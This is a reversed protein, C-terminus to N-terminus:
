RTLYSLIRRALFYVIALFAGIFAFMLFSLILNSGTRKLPLIPTDLYQILPTDRLLSTKASELNRVLDIYTSRLIQIDTQQKEGSVMPVQRNPNVHADVFSARGYLASYYANRVSDTRQQIFELNIRSRQTRTEIYYNTVTNLLAELFYKSFLEHETTLTVEIISTGKGKSDINLYKKTIQDYMLSILRNEYLSDSRNNRPNNFVFKERGKMWDERRDLSDLFFDAFLVSKGNLDVNSRLTKEILLRSQVLEVINTPSSFVGGADLNPSLGLEASIQSVGSKAPVAGEDLAFSIGATYMPKKLYARTAGVLGMVFASLLIWGWKSLVYYGAQQVQLIIKKPSIEEYIREQEKDYVTAM